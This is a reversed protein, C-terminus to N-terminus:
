KEKFAETDISAYRDALYKDTNTIMTLVADPDSGECKVTWQYGKSMKSLEIRVEPPDKVTRSLNVRVSEVEGGIHVEQGDITIVKDPTM